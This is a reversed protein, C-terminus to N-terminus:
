TGVDAELALDLQSMGRVDRWHRLLRGVPITPTTTM